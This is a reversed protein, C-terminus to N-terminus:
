SGSGSGAGDRLAALLRDAAPNPQHRLPLWAGIYRTPQPTVALDRVQPNGTLALTPVLAVGVGVGVLATMFRYDSSRCAVHPRFGSLAALM